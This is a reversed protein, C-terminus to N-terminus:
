NDVLFGDLEVLPYANGSRVRLEVRHTGVSSWARAIIVQRTTSATARLILTKVFKGDLYMDVTGRYANRPAVVAIGRGTFTMSVRSGPTSSATLTQNAAYVYSKRTWSGSYALSSSRDDVLRIRNPQASTAWASWHGASDQARVRFRYTDNGSFTVPRELERVLASTPVTYNWEGGNIQMQLEYRSITSSPDTAAGWAVRMGVTTGGVKVGYMLTAVPAKATPNDSVITIPVTVSDSRGQNTGTVRIDYRGAPTGLPINVHMTTANATWGLLSSQNLPATWGSPLNSVTFRVREFFNSSRSVVIPVTMTGGAEGTIDASGMGVAFTGLSSMRGVDLLKEHASDPDTSTKWNLNGLYQLAEKVDAPKANPRSSKYLAVAGAVMPAAMSTGSSYAYTPGPKTSYICKGPAIIDVDGGFNSFDAFTDDKDYGGWSWCRSGGLSGPKGDTDALASVTIVENYSAPVRLSAYSSDNAAAAVVTIGGAVVRCIAAHLIDNNNAGCALDDRGDKTVSMNVSEFLPRSSDNPDRQALIWDLGCVYWSLLGYGDNNLIKVAWVRAGPAVGVVGM